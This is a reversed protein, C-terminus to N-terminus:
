SAHLAPPVLAIRYKYKKIDELDDTVAKRM